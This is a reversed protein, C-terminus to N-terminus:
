SVMTRAPLWLLMRVIEAVDEPHVKWDQGNPRNEGGFETAVSGPVVTSVRVNDYRTDLM